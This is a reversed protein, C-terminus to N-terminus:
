GMLRPHHRRHDRLADRQPIGQSRCERCYNRRGTAPRREPMYDTQCGSCIALVTDSVRLMLQIALAGFLTTGHKYGHIRLIRPPLPDWTDRTGYTIRPGSAGDWSFQPRVGGVELWYQVLKTVAPYMAGSGARYPTGMLRDWAGPRPTVDAHAATAVTVVDRAHQAWQRWPAIPERGEYGQTGKRFGRPECGTDAHELDGDVLRLLRHTRPLDHDCIGLIGYRAAFAAIHADSTTSLAIFKDLLADPAAVRRPPHNATDRWSLVDGDPELRGPVLLFDDALPM